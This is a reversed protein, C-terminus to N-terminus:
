RTVHEHQKSQWSIRSSMCVQRTKLLVEADSNIHKWTHARLSDRSSHRPEKKQIAQLWETRPITVHSVEFPLVRAMHASLFSGTYFMCAPTLQYVISRLCINHASIWYIRLRISQVHSAQIQRQACQHTRAKAHMNLSICTHLETHIYTHMYTYVYMHVRVPLLFAPLSAHMCTSVCAWM